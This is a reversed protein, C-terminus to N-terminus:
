PIILEDCTIRRYNTKECQIVNRNILEDSVNDFINQTKEVNECYRSKLSNRDAGM